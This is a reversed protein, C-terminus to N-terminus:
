RRPLPWASSRVMMARSLSSPTRFTAGLWRVPSRAIVRKRSAPAFIKNLTAQASYDLQRCASRAASAVLLPSSWPPVCARFPGTRVNCRDWTHGCFAADGPRARGPPVGGSRSRSPESCRRKNSSFCRLPRRSASGESRPLQSPASQHGDHGTRTWLISFKNSIRPNV